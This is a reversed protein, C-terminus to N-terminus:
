RQYDKGTKTNFCMTEISMRGARKHALQVAYELRKCQDYGSQLTPRDPLPTIATAYTTVVILYWM